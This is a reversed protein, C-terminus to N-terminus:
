IIKYGFLSVKRINPNQLDLLSQLKPSGQLSSPKPSIDRSKIKHIPSGTINDTESGISLLSANSGSLRVGASMENLKQDSEKDEVSMDTM